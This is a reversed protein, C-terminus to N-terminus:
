AKKWRTKDKGFRWHIGFQLQRGKVAKFPAALILSNEAAFVDNFGHMYRLSVGIGPRCTTYEIGIVGFIPRETKFDAKTDPYGIATGLGEGAPEEARSTTLFDMQVGVYAGFGSIKYKVLLPIELYGNTYIFPRPLLPSTPPEEDYLEWQVRKYGFEQQIAFHRSINIEAFANVNFGLRGRLEYPRYGDPPNQLVLEGGHLTVNGAFRIGANVSQAQSAAPFAFTIVITVTKLARWLACSFIRKM